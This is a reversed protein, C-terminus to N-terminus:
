PCFDRLINNCVANLLLKPLKKIAHLKGHLCASLVLYADPHRAKIAEPLLENVLYRTRANSLWRVISPVGNM